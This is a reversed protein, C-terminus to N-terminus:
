TQATARSIPYEVNTTCDPKRMTKVETIASTEQTNYETRCYGKAKEYGAGNNHIERYCDEMM